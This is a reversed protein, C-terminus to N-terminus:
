ALVEYPLNMSTLLERIEIQWDPLDESSMQSLWEVAEANKGRVDHLVFSLVAYSDTNYPYCRYCNALYTFLYHDGSKITGYLSAMKEQLERERKELEKKYIDDWKSM